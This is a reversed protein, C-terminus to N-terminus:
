WGFPRDNKSVTESTDSGTSSSNPWSPQNAKTRQDRVTGGAVRTTFELGNLINGVSDGEGLSFITIKYFMGNNAYGYYVSGHEIENDGYTAFFNRQVLSMGRVSVLTSDQAWDFMLSLGEIMERMVTDEQARRVSLSTFDLTATPVEGEIAMVWLPTSFITTNKETRITPEGDYSFVYGAPQNTYTGHSVLTDAYNGLTATEGSVTMIRYKENTTDYAFAVYDYDVGVAYTALFENTTSFVEIVYCEYGGITAIGEYYYNYGTYRPYFYKAAIQAKVRASYPLDDSVATSTTGSTTDKSSTDQSTIPISEDKGVIIIDSAEPVYDSTIKHITIDVDDGCATLIATVLAVAIIIKTIKM